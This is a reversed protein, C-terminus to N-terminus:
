VEEMVGSMRLSAAGMGVSGMLYTCVLIVNAPAEGTSM